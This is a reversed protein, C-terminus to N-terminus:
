SAWNNDPISPVVRLVHSFLRVVVPSFRWFNITWCAAHSQALRPFLEMSKLFDSFSLLIEHPATAPRTHYLAPPATFQGAVVHLIVFVHVCLKQACRAEESRFISIESSKRHFLPLYLQFDSFYKAPSTSIPARRAHSLHILKQFNNWMYLYEHIAFEELMSELLVLKKERPEDSPLASHHQTSKGFSWFVGMTDPNIKANSFKRKEDINSKLEM